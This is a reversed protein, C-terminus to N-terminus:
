IKPVWDASELVRGSILLCTRAFVGVVVARALHLAPVCCPWVPALATVASLMQPGADVHM